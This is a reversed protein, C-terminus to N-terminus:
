DFLYNLDEKGGEEGLISEKITDALLAEKAKWESWLQSRVKAYKTSLDNLKEYHSKEAAELEAHLTFLENLSMQDIEQESPLGAFENFHQQPNAIYLPVTSSPVPMSLSEQNTQTTDIAPSTLVDLYRVVPDVFPDHVKGLNEESRVKLQAKVYPLLEAPMAITSANKDLMAISSVIKGEETISVPPKKTNTAHPKRPPDSPRQNDLEHITRLHKALADSRSFSRACEPVHCQFPREGTHSRLHTVLAFRATQLVGRRNCSRWLCELVTLKSISHDEAVHHVLDDGSSFVKTCRDWECPYSDSFSDDSDSDGPIDSDSDSSVDTFDDVPNYDPEDM